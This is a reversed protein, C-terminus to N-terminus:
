EKRKRMSLIFEKIKRLIPKIKKAQKDLGSWKLLLAFLFYFPKWVIRLIFMLVALCGAIVMMCLSYILKLIFKIPQIFILYLLRIIFRCLLIAFQILRELLTQYFSRFLAQYTAYGCVLALFIYFRIEGNNLQLLVYFVILAQILWFLVDNCAVFWHFSRRKKSFRGYTDIAAGIYLGMAAM